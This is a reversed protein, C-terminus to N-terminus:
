VCMNLISYGGTASANRFINPTEFLATVHILSDRPMKSTRTGRDNMDSSSFEWNSGFWKTETPSVFHFVVLGHLRFLPGMRGNSTTSIAVGKTM